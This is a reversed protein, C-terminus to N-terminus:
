LNRWWIGSLGPQTWWSRGPWCSCCTLSYSRRRRSRRVKEKIQRALEATQRDATNQLQLARCDDHLTTDAPLSDVPIIVFRSEGRTQYVPSLLVTKQGYVPSMLVMRQASPMEVPELYNVDKPIAAESEVKKNTDHVTLAADVLVKENLNTNSEKETATSTLENVINVKKDTEKIVDGPQEETQRDTNTPLPYPSTNGPDYSYVKQVTLTVLRTKKRIFMKLPCSLCLSSLLIFFGINLALPPEASAERTSIFFSQEAGM